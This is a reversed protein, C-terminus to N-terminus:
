EAISPGASFHACLAAAMTLLSMFFTASMIWWRRRPGIHDGIRGLSTGVLFSLLSTLAQQDPKHFTTDRPSSAFLRAVALALQVLGGAVRLFPAM